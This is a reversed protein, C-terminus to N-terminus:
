PLGDIAEGVTKKGDKQKKPSFVAQSKESEFAAIIVRRRHQPVGFEYADYERVSQHLGLEELTQKIGDFTRRHKKDQIGLVNEFIIFEVKYEAQLAAVIDLYLAPLKNRPDDARSAVNSRSFGQCPPGGIVGISDGPSLVQRAAEMLGTVGLKVLDAHLSRTEPFAKRHTEVAWEDFDVALVVDYGGDKFGLDLGGAGSFLSIIKPLTQPPKGGDEARVADSQLLPTM